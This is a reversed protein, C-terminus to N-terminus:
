EKVDNIEVHLDYGNKWSLEEYDSKSPEVITIQQELVEIRRKLSDIEENKESLESSM